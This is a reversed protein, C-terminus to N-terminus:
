LTGCKSEKYRFISWNKVNQFLSNRIRLLSFPHEFTKSSFCVTTHSRSFISKKSFKM